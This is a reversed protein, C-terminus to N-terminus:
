AVKVNILESSEDNVVVLTDGFIRNLIPDDPECAYMNVFLRWGGTEQAERGVLLIEDRGDGNFDGSTMDYLTFWAEFGGELLFDAVPQDMVSARETIKLEDDIDYLVLYVYPNDLEDRARYALVFEESGGDIFDGSALLVPSNIYWEGEFWKPNRKHIGSEKEWSALSPNGLVNPDARLAAMKMIGDYPWAAVIDSLGRDKNMLTIVEFHNDWQSGEAAYTLVNLMTDTPTVEMSPFFKSVVIEGSHSSFLILEEGGGKRIVRTKSLPDDELDDAMVLQFSSLLIMSLSFTIIYQKMTLGGNKGAQIMQSGYDIRKENVILFIKRM